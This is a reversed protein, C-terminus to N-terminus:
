PNPARGWLGPYHLVLGVEDVTIEASFGSDVNEFRYRDEALRTYRQRSPEITLQPFRVWAARLEQSGGIPLGLRRIPITNTSPSIELDADTCGQLDIRARGSIQWRGDEQVTASLRRGMRGQWFRVSVGRTRWTADCAVHYLVKSAIGDFDTEVTGHLHWTDRFLDLRAVERGPQDQRIWRVKWRTATM